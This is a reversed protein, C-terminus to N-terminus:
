SGCLLAHHELPSLPCRAVKWGFDFSVTDRAAVVAVTASVVVLGSWMNFLLLANIKIRNDSRARIRIGAIM